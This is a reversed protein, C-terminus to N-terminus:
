KIAAAKSRAKALLDAAKKKSEDEVKQANKDTTAKLQKSAKQAIKKKLFNSGADKVLKDAQAYGEKRIKDAVKKGEATLNDAQKQAEALINQRQKEKEADFNEKVVKTVATKAQQKAGGGLISYTPADYTGGIGISLKIISSTNSSGTYKSLFRNVQAGINGAPIEMDMKYDIKGDVTCKGSVTTKYNGIKIDFPRVTLEGNIIAASIKVDKLSIKDNSGILKNGLKTVNSLETMFKPKDLSAQAINLLFKANISGFNPMMDQKLLGSINVDTSVYGTMNKALPVYEKVITFTEFAQSISLNEIAMAFHYAPNNIDKAHYAGNVM